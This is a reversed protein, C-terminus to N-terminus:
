KGYKKIKREHAEKNEKDTPHRRSFWGAEKAQKSTGFKPPIAMKSERRPPPYNEEVFRVIIEQKQGQRGVKM